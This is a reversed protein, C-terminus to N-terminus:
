VQLEVNREHLMYIPDDWKNSVSSLDWDLTCYFLKGVDEDTYIEEDTKIKGSLNQSTALRM